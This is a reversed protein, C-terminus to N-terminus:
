QQFPKTYSSALFNYFKFPVFYGQAHKCVPCNQPASTGKQIHGCNLCIWEIETDSTFMKSQELLEAFAGFRNGHTKEIEAIQKFANAAPMFGEQEAVQQFSPYVVTNEHYENKQAARLLQILDTFNEVPYSGDIEIETGNAEKLLEWFIKAHQQEQHATEKFIQHIFYMNQQKAVTAALDYRNRAQSEGAFARMLNERTKSEIFNVAM